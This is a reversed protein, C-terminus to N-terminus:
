ASEKSPRIRWSQTEPKLQAEADTKAYFFASNVLLLAAATASFFNSFLMTASLLGFAATTGKPDALTADIQLRATWLGTIIANPLMVHFVLLMQFLLWKFAPADWRGRVSLLVTLLAQMAGAIVLADYSKSAQGGLKKYKYATFGDLVVTTLFLPVVWVMAVRHVVGATSMPYKEELYTRAERYQAAM